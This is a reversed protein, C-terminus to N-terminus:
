SLFATNITVQAIKSRFQNYPKEQLCLGQKNSSYKKLQYTSFLRSGFGLHLKVLKPAWLICPGAGIIPNFMSFYNKSILPQNALIVILKHNFNNILLGLEFM